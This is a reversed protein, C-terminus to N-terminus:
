DLSAGSAKVIAAWVPIEAKSYAAFEDPTNGAVDVGLDILSKRVAPDTIEGEWGRRKTPTDCERM